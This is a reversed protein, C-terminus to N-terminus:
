LVYKMFELGCIMNESCNWTNEFNKINFLTSQNFRINRLIVYLKYSGLM